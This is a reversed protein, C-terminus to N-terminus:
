INLLWWVPLLMAFLGIPVLSYYVALALKEGKYKKPDIKIQKYGITTLAAGAALLVIPIFFLNLATLAIIVGSVIAAGTVAAGALVMPHLVPEEEITDEETITTDPAYFTDWKQVTLDEHFSLGPSAARPLALEPYKSENFALTQTSPLARVPATTELLAGETQLVYTQKCSVALLSFIISLCFFRMIATSRTLSIYKSGPNSCYRLNM